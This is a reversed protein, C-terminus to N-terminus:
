ISQLPFWLEPKKLELIDFFCINSYINFLIDDL